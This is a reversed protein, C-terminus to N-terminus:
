AHLVLKQFIEGYKKAARDWSFEQVRQIGKEILSNKLDGNSAIQIMAEALEDTRYPDIYLSADGCVEPLSAAKSVITPCGSAMAELPTLGFGEYFSPLILAKALNYIRPLDEDPVEGLDIVNKEKTKEGKGILVLSYDPISAQVFARILGELNKHGKRNGVFLFFTEPLQYKKRIQHLLGVNREKAFREQDIGQWIVHVDREKFTKGIESKTFFSCTIVADSLALARRMIEKAFIRKFPSFFHAMKLHCLDHITVARKKAKTPLLPVNYHPSWFLDCKPIKLPFFLQEQISYIPCPFHIQRIDSRWADEKEVLVTIRFFERNLRPVIERIFIGIGSSNAMRADICLDITKM